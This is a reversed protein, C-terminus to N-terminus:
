IGFAHVVMPRGISIKSKSMEGEALTSFFSIPVHALGLLYVIYSKGHIIM